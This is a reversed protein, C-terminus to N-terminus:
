RLYLIKWTFALGRKWDIDEVVSRRYFKGSPSTKRKVHFIHRVHRRTCKKNSLDIGELLLPRQTTVTRRPRYIVHSKVLHILGPSIAEIVKNFEVPPIPFSHSTM